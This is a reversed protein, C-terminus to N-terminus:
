NSAFPHNGRFNIKRLLQHESPYKGPFLLASLSADSQIRLLRRYVSVPAAPAHLQYYINWM